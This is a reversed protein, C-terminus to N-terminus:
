WLAAVCMMCCVSLCVRPSLPGLGGAGESVVNFDYIHGMIMLLTVRTHETSLLQRQMHLSSFCSCFLQGPGAQRDTM